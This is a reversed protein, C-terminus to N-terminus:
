RPELNSQRISRIYKPDSELAVQILGSKCRKVIVCNKGILVGDDRCFGLDGGGNVACKVGPEILLEKGGWTKIIM